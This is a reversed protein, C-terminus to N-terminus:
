RVEDEGVGVDAPPVESAERGPLNDLRYVTIADGETRTTLLWGHVAGATQAAVRVGPHVSLGRFTLWNCGPGALPSLDFRRRPRGSPSSLATGPVKAPRSPRPDDPAVCTVTMAKGDEVLNCILRKGPHLRQRTSAALRINRADAPEHLVLRLSGGIALADISAYRTPRGPRTNRPRRICRLGESTLEHEIAFGKVKAHRAAATAFPQAVAPTCTILVEEGDKKEYLRNIARRIRLTDETNM